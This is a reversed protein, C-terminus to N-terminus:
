SVHHTLMHKKLESPKVFTKECSPCHIPKEIGHQYMHEKLNYNQSFTKFCIECSFKKEGSHSVMHRKLHDFRSFQKFCIKCFHPSESLHLLKHSKLHDARSFSKGCSDCLLASSPDHIRVHRTLKAKTNFQKNCTTCVYSFDESHTHWHTRLSQRQSFHKGCIDCLYKKVEDKSATNLEQERQGQGQNTKIIISIKRNITSDNSELDDSDNREMGDNNPVTAKNTRITVICSSMNPFTLIPHPKDNDAKGFNTLSDDALTNEIDYNDTTDSINDLDNHTEIQDKNESLDYCDTSDSINGMDESNEFKHENMSVTGKNGNENEVSHVTTKFLSSDSVRIQHIRNQVPMMNEHVFNSLKQICQGWNEHHDPVTLEQSLMNRVANHTEYDPELQGLGTPMGQCPVSIMANERDSGYPITTEPYSSSPIQIPAYPDTQIQKQPEQYVADGILYMSSNDNFLVGRGIIDNDKVM